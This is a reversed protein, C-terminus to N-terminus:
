DCIDFCCVRGSECNLGENEFWCGTCDNGLVCNYGADDSCTSSPALVCCHGGCELPLDDGLPEYGVPCIVWREATCIGGAIECAGEIQCTSSCGDGDTNNGDDCLESADMVDDGCYAPQCDSRCADALTDSNGAGDDCLESADIVDDGCYAPQCDSRCADAETDSNASGDDCLEPSDIVGDGCSANSNAQNSNDNSNDNSNANNTNGATSSGSDCGAALAFGLMVFGAAVISLGKGPFRLMFSSHSATCM